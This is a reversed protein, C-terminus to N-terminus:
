ATMSTTQPTGDVYGRSDVGEASRDLLPNAM